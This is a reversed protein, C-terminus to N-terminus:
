IRISPRAILCASGRAQCPIQQENAFRVFDWVILFYSAYGMKEIVSLEYDLRETDRPKPIEDGDRYVAGPNAFYFVPIEYWELPVELGRNRRANVIHEEFAMFDRISPPRGDPYPRRM